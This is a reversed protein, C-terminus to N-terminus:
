RNAKAFIISKHFDNTCLHCWLLRAVTLSIRVGLNAEKTIVGPWKKQLNTKMIEIQQDETVQTIKGALLDKDIYKAFICYSTISIM